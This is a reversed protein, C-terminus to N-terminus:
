GFKISRQLLQENYVRDLQQEIPSNIQLVQGRFPRHEEKRSEAFLRLIGEQLIDLDSSSLGALTYTGESDKTCTIM